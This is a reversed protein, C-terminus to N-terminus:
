QQLILHSYRILCILICYVFGISASIWVTEAESKFINGRRFNFRPLLRYDFQQQLVWAPM